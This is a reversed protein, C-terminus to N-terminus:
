WAGVAGAGVESWPFGLGVWTRLFLFIGVCVLLSITAWGDQSLLALREKKLGYNVVAYVPIDDLAVALVAGFVGAVRYAFPLAVVLYAFKALNGIAPYRPKGVALLSGDISAHLILPWMGLALLPFIWAAASYRDDYLTLVFLDGFSGVAAVAVSLSLLLARRPRRIRERLDSRPLEVFKAILPFIVKSSLRSIVQKPLEALMLAISYVGLLSMTFLTGLILRDAQTALFMMATSVLVWKGFSLLERVAAKELQFRNPQSTNILHSWVTKATVGVLEGIVLAWVNRYVYALIAMCGLSILQVCIEMSTLTKQRLERNLTVIATSQLGQPISLLGIAPIVLALIPEGYIAAAPFAAAFSLGALVGGRITTLTWASNLLVADGARKSRIIAPELGIDSFLGIGMVVIRAIAIIGFLEPILLRTLLLNGGLRIVQSAGFGLFVFASAQIARRRYNGASTGIGVVGATELRPVSSPVNTMPAM